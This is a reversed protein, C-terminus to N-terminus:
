NGSGRDKKTKLEIQMETDDLDNQMKQQQERQMQLREQQTPNRPRVVPPTSEELLPVARKKPPPPPPVPTFLKQDVGDDTEEQFEKSNFNKGDIAPAPISVPSSPQTRTRGQTAFQIQLDVFAWWGAATNAGAVSTGGGFKLQYPDNNWRLWANLDVRGPNVSDFYLSYGDRNIVADRNYGNGTGTDRVVTQFGSLEGGIKIVSALVEGGVGFPLLGARGQDRYQYGLYAFSDFSRFRARGVLRVTAAMDGEDILVDDSGYDVRKTPYKFTFEPWLAMNNQVWALYDFGATTSALGSNNRTKLSDNSQASAFDLSVFFSLRPYFVYRLGLTGDTIKFSSGSLQSAFSGGDMYNGRAQFYQLSGEVDLEGLRFTRFEDFAM